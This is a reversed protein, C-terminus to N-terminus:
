LRSARQALVRREVEAYRAALEKYVLVNAAVPAVSSAPV